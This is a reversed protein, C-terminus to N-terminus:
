ASNQVALYVIFRNRELAKIVLRLEILWIVEQPFVKILLLNLLRPPFRLNALPKVM